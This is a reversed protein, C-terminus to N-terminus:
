SMEELIREVEADSENGPWQGRISELWTTGPPTPIRPKLDALTQPPKRHKLAELERMVLQREFLESVYADLEQGNEAAEQRLQAEWLDPLEIQISM